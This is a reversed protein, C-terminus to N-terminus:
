KGCAAHGDTSLGAVFANIDPPAGKTMQVKGQSCFLLTPTSVPGVKGLLETNAQIVRAIDPAPSAVPEIGGEETPVNFNKEDRTLAALPNKDALIAASKGASDPKLFAGMVYRVRVKGADVAPAIDTFFKHCYFCNPDMFVTVIPGKKGSLIGKASADAAHTLAEDAKMLVGEDEMAKQSLNEAQDNYAMPFLVSGDKSMFVVGPAPASVGNTVVGIVGVRRTWDNAFLRTAQLNNHSSGYVLAKARELTAPANIDLPAGVSAGAVPATGAAGPQGKAVEVSPGGVPATKSSDASGSCASLLAVTLAVTSGLALRSLSRNM